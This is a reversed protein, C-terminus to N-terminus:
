EITPLQAAAACHLPKLTHWKRLHTATRQCWMAGAASLMSMGIVGTMSISAPLDVAAIVVSIPEVNHMFVATFCCILGTLLHSRHAASFAKTAFFLLERRIV